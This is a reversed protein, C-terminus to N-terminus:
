FRVLAGASIGYNSDDDVSGRVLVTWQASVDFAAIAGFDWSGDDEGENDFYDQWAAFLTLSAKDGAPIEVGPVIQYIADNDTDGDIKSWGWGAGVKVFPKMNGAPMYFTANFTLAQSSADFDYAGGEGLDISAGTDLYSYDVSLDVNSSLPQNLTLSIGKGDDISSGAPVEDEDWLVWDFTAGAYRQGLLGSASAVSVSGTVLAAAAVFKLIRTNSKM